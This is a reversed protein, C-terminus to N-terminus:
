RPPDLRLTRSAEASTGAVRDRVVLTLRYTGPRQGALDLLLAAADEPADGEAIMAAAVGPAGRRGLLRRLGRRVRGGGEVPLLRAEVEFRSRGADLALGYVEVYAWLPEGQAVDNWPSARLWTEGRRVAGPPPAEVGDEAIHTALLLGSTRLGGEDFSPVDLEMAALGFATGARVEAGLRAPGPAVAVVASQARTGTDRLADEPGFVSADARRESLASGDTGSSWVVGKADEGPPLGYAILLDTRGEEGRFATATLPTDLTAGAALDHEEGVTNARGRALTADDIGRSSSSLEYRGTRFLDDFRLTVDPYVWVDTAGNVVHTEWRRTRPPGYRIWTDGRDTDRGLRAWRTGFLLDAEVTRALHELWRDNAPTLRRADRAEWFADAWAASDAEWAPRDVPRVFRAPSRLAAPDGSRLVAGRALSDAREANGLRWAAAAATLWAESDFPRADLAVRASASFAARDDLLLAVRAALRHAEVSRADADLVADLHARATGAARLGRRAHWSRGDWVGLTRATGRYHELEYAARTALELHGLTTAPDLALLRRAATRRRGDFHSYAPAEPHRRLDRLHAAWVGPIEPGTRLARDLARRSARRDDLALAHALHTPAHRRDLRAAEALHHVAARDDGLALDAAGAARLGSVDAQAAALPALVLALALLRLPMVPAPYVQTGLRCM